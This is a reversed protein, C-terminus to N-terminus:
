DAPLGADPTGGYMTEYYTATTTVRFTVAYREDDIGRVYKATQDSGLRQLMQEYKLDGLLCRFESGALKTLIDRAENRTDTVFTLAFNRRIQDGDKKLGTFKISYDKASELIANLEELEAKSNNYSPMSSTESLEGISDLEEKMKRLQREKIQAVNLDSQLASKQSQAETIANQCPVYFFRYYLLAIIILALIVLLIKEGTTFERSLKM